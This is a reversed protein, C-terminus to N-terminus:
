NERWFIQRNNGRFGGFVAEAQPNELLQTNSPDWDYQLWPYDSLQYQLPYRSEIGPPSLLLDFAASSGNKLSTATGSVTLTPQSGATVLLRSATVPSCNDSTHPVFQQSNWYEAKLQVPLNSQESGLANVIQMRGYRWPQATDLTKSLCNTSCNDTTAPHQNLDALMSVNGDNDQLKLGFLV